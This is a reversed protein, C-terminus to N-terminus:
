KSGDRKKHMSLINSPDDKDRINRMSNIQNQTRLMNRSLDGQTRKNNLLSSAAIKTDNM